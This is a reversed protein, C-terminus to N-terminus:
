INFFYGSRATAEVSVAMADLRSVMVALILLCRGICQIDDSEQISHTNVVSHASSHYPFLM